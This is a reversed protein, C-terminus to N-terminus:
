PGTPNELIQDAMREFHRYEPETTGLDAYTAGKKLANEIQYFGFAHGERCLLVGEKGSTIYDAESHILQNDSLSTNALGVPLVDEEAGSNWNVPQPEHVPMNMGLFVALLVTVVGIGVHFATRKSM